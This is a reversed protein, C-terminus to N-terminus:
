DKELVADVFTLQDSDVTNQHRVSGYGPKSFLFSVSQTQEFEKFFLAYRGDYNRAFLKEEAQLSLGQNYKLIQSARDYTETALIRDEYTAEVNAQGLPKAAGDEDTWAVLGRVMTGPPYPYDPAPDLVMVAIVNGMNPDNPIEIQSESVMYGPAAVTVTYVTGGPLKTFSYYGGSKAFGHRDEGDFKFRPLSVPPGDTFSDRLQIVLSLRIELQPITHFHSM